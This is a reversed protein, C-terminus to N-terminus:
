RFELLGALLQVLGGYCLAPGNVVGLSANVPVTAGALYMSAIFTTLAFACLGLPTPNLDHYSPRCSQIYEPPSSKITQQHKLFKEFALRTDEDLNNITVSGNHAM